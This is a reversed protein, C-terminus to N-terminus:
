DTIGNRELIFRIGATTTPMLLYPNDKHEGRAITEDNMKAYAAAMAGMITYKKAQPMEKRMQTYDDCIKQARAIRTLERQRLNEFDATM